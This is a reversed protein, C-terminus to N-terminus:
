KQIKTDCMSWIVRAAPRGWLIDRKTEAEVECLPCLPGEMIKRSFLNAKTALSNQCVSWLFGKVVHPVNM